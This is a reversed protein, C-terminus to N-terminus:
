LGLDKKKAEFEEKTIEGRAYRTNLINLPSEGAGVQRGSRLVQYLVLAIIALLAIWLFISWAGMIGCGGYMM